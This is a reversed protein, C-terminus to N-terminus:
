GPLAVARYHVSYRAVMDEWACRQVSGLDRWFGFYAESESDSLTQSAWRRVLGNGGEGSLLLAGINWELGAM